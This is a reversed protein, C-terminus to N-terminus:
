IGYSSNWVDVWNGYDSAGRKDIDDFLGLMRQMDEANDVMAPASGFAFFFRGFILSSSRSDRKPCTYPTEPGTTMASFMVPDAIYSSTRTPCSSNTPPERDKNIMLTYM